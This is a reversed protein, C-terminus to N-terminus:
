DGSFKRKEYSRIMRAEEAEKEAKREAATVYRKFNAGGTVNGCVMSWICKSKGPHLACNLCAGHGDTTKARYVQGQKIVVIEDVAPDITITVTAKKEKEQEM